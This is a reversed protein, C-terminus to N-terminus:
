IDIGFRESYDAFQERVHAADLGFPALDPSPRRSDRPNEKAWRAMAGRTEATLEIDLAAYINEVERLPNAVFDDFRVDVWPRTVKEDRFRLLRKTRDVWSVVEGPDLIGGCVTESLVTEDCGALGEVAAELIDEPCSFAEDTGSGSSVGAKRMSRPMPNSAM